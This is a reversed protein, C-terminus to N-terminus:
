TARPWAQGTTAPCARASARGASASTWSRWVLFDMKGDDDVDAVVIGGASDEEDGPGPIDLEVVFPNAEYAAAPATALCAVLWWAIARGRTM